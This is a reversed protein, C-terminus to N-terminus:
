KTKRKIIYSLDDTAPNDILEGRTTFRSGHCPCDWSKEQRNWKLACGLHPCRKRTPKLLNVTSEAINVVLQPRLITRSPNYLPVYKNEYGMVMDMLLMAAVMASTFGWKSFGTAVYLGESHKSYRGIYPVGDLSMCDQTAWRYRETYYPYYCKAFDELEQWKGGNKGTRHSGGGLLLLDKYTRFSLGKDNEDVYMGHLGFRSGFTSSNMKAQSFNSKLGLVYSRNQYLKLYYFGHKNIIPYHTTMIIKDATIVSSETIARNKAFERVKTHEYINLDKVIAAIFKLPNFQAQHDFWVSGTVDFPLPLRKDFQAPCGMKQLAILEKEIKDSKSLSYVYNPKEEFDCDINRCLERYKRVAAENSEYYLCAKELGFRQILKHYILGHQSTIKATTNKTIGSCIEKAEVLVYKVGKKSLMYACLIGALGGGVILVDTKINEKLTPFHQLEVSDTWVSNM